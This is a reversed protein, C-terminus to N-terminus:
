GNNKKKKGKKIGKYAISYKEYEEYKLISNGLFIFVSAICTSCDIRQRTDGTMDKYVDFLLRIDKSLMSKRNSKTLACQKLTEAFPRCVEYQEKTM